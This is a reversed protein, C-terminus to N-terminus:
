EKDFKEINLRDIQMVVNALVMCIEVYKLLESEEKFTGEELSKLLSAVIIADKNGPFMPVYSNEIKNKMEYDLTVLGKLIKSVDEKGLTKM